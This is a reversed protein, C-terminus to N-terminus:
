TTFTHVPQIILLERKPYVKRSLILVISLMLSVNSSYDNITIAETYSFNSNLVYNIYLDWKLRRWSQM